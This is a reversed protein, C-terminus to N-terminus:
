VLNHMQRLYQYAISSVERIVDGRNDKWVRYNKTPQSKEIIGIFTYPYRGGNRGQAVLIGM